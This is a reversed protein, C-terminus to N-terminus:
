FVGYETNYVRGSFLSYFSAFGAVGYLQVCQFSDSICYISVVLLSDLSLTPPLYETQRFASYAWHTLHRDSAPLQHCSRHLSTSSSLLSPPQETQRDRPQNGQNPRSVSSRFKQQTFARMESISQHFHKLKPLHFQFNVQLLEIQTKIRQVCTQKSDDM